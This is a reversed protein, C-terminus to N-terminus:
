LSVKGCSYGVTAIRVSDNTMITILKHIYQFLYYNYM